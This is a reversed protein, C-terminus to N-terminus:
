GRAGLGLRAGLHEEGALRGAAPGIREATWAALESAGRGAHGREVEGGWGQRMKHKVKTLPSQPQPWGPQPLGTNEDVVYLIPDFWILVGPGEM